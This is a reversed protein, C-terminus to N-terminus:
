LVCRDFDESVVPNGFIVVILDGRFLPVVLGFVWWFLRFFVECCFANCCVMVVGYVWVILCVIGVNVVLIVRKEDFRM